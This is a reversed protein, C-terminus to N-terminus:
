SLLKQRLMFELQENVQMLKKLLERNEERLNYVEIANDITIKLDAPNFPKVEYRYVQGKNIAEIVTEINSYGTLLIRVPDPYDKLISELFEVGTMGPMRQDTIIVKIKNEALIKKGEEASSATFIQYHPRFNAIFSILNNAEDDIYLITSDQKM